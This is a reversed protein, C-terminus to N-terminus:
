QGTGTAKKKMSGVPKAAAPTRLAPTPSRDPILNTLATIKTQLGANGPDYRAAAQYSMEAFKAYVDGLNELAVAYEPFARVAQELYSRALEYRGQQAYIVALNNYPEALEPFEEILAIYLAIADDPKGQSALLQAKLFRGRADTPNSALYGDVQQLAASENGEQYLRAADDVADARVPLPAILALCLLPAALRALTV